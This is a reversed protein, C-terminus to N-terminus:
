FLWEGFGCLIAVQMEALYKVSKRMLLKYSLFHDKMGSLCVSLCVSLNDSWSDFTQISPFLEKLESM